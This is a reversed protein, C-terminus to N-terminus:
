VEGEALCSGVSRVYCAEDVRGKNMTYGIPLVDVLMGMNSVLFGKWFRILRVINHLLERVKRKESIMFM